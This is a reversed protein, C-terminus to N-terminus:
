SRISTLQQKDMRSTVAAMNSIIQFHFANRRSDNQIATIVDAKQYIKKKLNTLRLM